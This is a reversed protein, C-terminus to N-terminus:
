QATFAALIDYLGHVVIATTTNTRQRIVGLAVGLLGVTLVGFWTYQVHGSAFLMSSLLLGLRPQLAGRVTIEEGVGASIGLVITAGLSLHAAIMKTVQQDALALAPFRHTEIWEMGTNVGAVAALGAAAWIWHRPTMATLGLRARAERWDRKLGLGVGALGLTVLGIMQAVLGLPTVLDGSRSSLTAILEPRMLAFVPFALFGIATVRATLRETRNPTFTHFLRRAVADAVSRAALALVLLAAVGGCAAAVRQRTGPADQLAFAAMGALMLAGFLPLIGRVVSRSVAGLLQTRPLTARVWDRYAPAAAAADTAQALVFLGSIAVLLAGETSGLLVFLAGGVVLALFWAFLRRRLRATLVQVRLADELSSPPGADNDPAGPPQNHDMDRAAYANM